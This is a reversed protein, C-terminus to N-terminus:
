AAVRAAAVARVALDVVPGGTLVEDTLGDRVIRAWSCGMGFGPLTIVICTGGPLSASLNGAASWRLGTAARCQHALERVHDDLVEREARADDYDMVLDIM